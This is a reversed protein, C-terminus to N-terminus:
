RNITALKIGYGLMSGASGYEFYDVYPGAEIFVKNTLRFGAGVVLTAHGALGVNSPKSESRLLTNNDDYYRFGGSFNFSVMWSAKDTLKLVHFALPIGIYSVSYSFRKNSPSDPVSFSNYMRYEGGIWVSTGSTLQYGWQHSLGIAFKPDYSYNTENKYGLSISRGLDLSWM